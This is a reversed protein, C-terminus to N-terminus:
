GLAGALFFPPSWPPLGPPPISPPPASPASPPPPNTPDRGGEIELLQITFHFCSGYGYWVSFPGITREPPVYVEWKDGEVMRLLVERWAAQSQGPTVLAAGLGKQHTSDFIVGDISKRAEYHINCPSDDKPHDSGSGNVAVFYQVGSALTEIGLGNPDTCNQRVYDGWKHNTRDLRVDGGSWAGHGGQLEWTDTSETMKLDAGRTMGPGTGGWAPLTMDYEEEHSHTRSYFRQWGLERGHETLEPEEEPSPNYNRPQADVAGLMAVLLVLKLTCM